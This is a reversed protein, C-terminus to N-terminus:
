TAFEIFLFLREGNLDSVKKNYTKLKIKHHEDKISLLFELIKFVFRPAIGSHYGM